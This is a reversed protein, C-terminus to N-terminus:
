YVTQDMRSHFASMSVIVAIAIIIYLYFLYWVPKPEPTTAHYIAQKGDVTQLCHELMALTLFVSDHLLFFLLYVVLYM